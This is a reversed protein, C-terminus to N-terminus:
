GWSEQELRMGASNLVVTGDRLSQQVDAFSTMSTEDRSVEVKRM